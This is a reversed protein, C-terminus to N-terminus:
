VRAGEEKAAKRRRRSTSVTVRETTFTVRSDRGCNSCMLRTPVETIILSAEGCWACHVSVRM